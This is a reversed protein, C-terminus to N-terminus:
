SKVIPSIKDTFRKYWTLAKTDEPSSDKKYHRITLVALMIVLCLLINLVLVVISTISSFNMSWNLWFTKNILLKFMMTLHHGIMEFDIPLLDFISGGANNILYDYSISPEPIVADSDAFICKFYYIVSQVFSKLALWFRVFHSNFCFVLLLTLVVAVLILQKYNEKVGQKLKKLM